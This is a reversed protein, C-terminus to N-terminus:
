KRIWPVEYRTFKDFYENPFNLGFVINEKSNCPNYFTFIFNCTWWNIRNSFVYCSGKDHFFLYARTSLYLLLMNWLWLKFRLQLNLLFSRTIKSIWNVTLEVKRIKFCFGIGPQFIWGEELRLNVNVTCACITNIEFCVFHGINCFRFHSVNFNNWSKFDDFGYSIPHLRCLSGCRSQPTAHLEM